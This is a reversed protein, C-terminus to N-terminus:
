IQGQYAQAARGQKQAIGVERSLKERGSYALATVQADTDLMRRIGSAILEAVDQALNTDGLAFFSALESSRARQRELALGWDGQHAAELILDSMTLLAEIRERYEELARKQIPVIVTDRM